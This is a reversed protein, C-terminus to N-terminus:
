HNQGLNTKIEGERERETQRDRERGRQRQRESKSQRETEAEICILTEAPYKKAMKKKCKKCNAECYM